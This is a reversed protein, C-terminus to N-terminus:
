VNLSFTLCLAAFLCRLPHYLFHLVSPFLNVRASRACPCLFSLPFFLSPTRPVFPFISSFVYLPSANLDKSSLNLPLSFILFSVSAPSNNNDASTQVHIVTRFRYKKGDRRRVYTINRERVICWYKSRM